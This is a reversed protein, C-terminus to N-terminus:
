RLRRSSQKSRCFKLSRGGSGKEKRQGESSGAATGPGVSGRVSRVWRRERGPPSRSLRGGNGNPHFFLGKGWSVAWSLSIKIDPHPACGLWAVRHTQQQRASARAGGRRERSRCSFSGTTILFSKENIKKEFSRQIKKKKQPHLVSSYLGRSRWM